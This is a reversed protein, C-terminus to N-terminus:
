KKAKKGQKEGGKKEQKAEPKKEVEAAYKPGKVFICYKSHYETFPVIQETERLEKVAERAMSMSCKLKDSLISTTIYKEKGVLDKM